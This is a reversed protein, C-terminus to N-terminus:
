KNMNIAKSVNHKVLETKATIVRNQLTNLTKELTDYRTSDNRFILQEARDMRKARLGNVVGGKSGSKSKSKSKSKSSRREM